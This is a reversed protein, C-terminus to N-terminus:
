KMECREWSLAARQEFVSCMGRVAKVVYAASRNNRSSLKRCRTGHLERSLLSRWECLNSSSGFVM